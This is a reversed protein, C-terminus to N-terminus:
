DFSAGLTESRRNRLSRRKVGPSPSLVRLGQSNEPETPTGLIRINILQINFFFDFSNFSNFSDFLNGAEFLIGSPEQNNSAMM